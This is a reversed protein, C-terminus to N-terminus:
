MNVRPLWPMGLQEKCTDCGCAVRWLATFGLGLDPYTRINYYARLGNYNQEPFHTKFNPIPPVDDMTYSEYTNREVLAKGERKARMGESKIGNLRTPNGLLAMIGRKAQLLHHLTHLGVCETCGCMTKHSDTFRRVCGLGSVIYRFAREDVKNKITPQDRVINSFITGLGVMTLIKRVLVKEGNANKVQLTDKTNPLVVVHPHNNFAELLISKLKDSITLYGRKTKALACYIGRREGATLQQRKTIMAGNVRQLTSRPIRFLKARDRQNPIVIERNTSPRVPLPASFLMVVKTANCKERKSKGQVKANSRAHGLMRATQKSVYSDAAQAKTSLIGALASKAFMIKIKTMTMIGYQKVMKTM